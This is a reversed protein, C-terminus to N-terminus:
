LEVVIQSARVQNTSATFVVESADGTWTGNAGSYTYDGTSWTFCGPGYKADDNATCTFTVKKVNGVTSTVTLTQNKYIRYHTENNYTGLIGSSVTITVGDKTITYSTANNSDTGANGKDVDADFVIAGEPPTTGTNDDNGNNDGNNDGNGGPNPNENGSSILKVFYAGMVEIKGNYSGRFGRLTIKDGDKLGLSAFSKDNNTTGVAIFEKTLGYVYVTGTEDSLDFNGYVVANGGASLGSIVGTLEYYVEPSEPANIFEKITVVKATPEKQEVNPNVGFEKNGVKAYEPNKVGAAGFYAELSGYILVEVGDLDPNQVLNLGTRLAGNPLQVPVCNGSNTEDASNAILINTNYSNVSGDDNTSGSFPASFEAGSISKGNIQGVIHAKVWYKGANANNLLRVDNATYPNEFSGDGVVETPNENGPNDGGSLAPNTSKWIHAAGKGVTEYTGNYNTLEGYIVVYDGVAVAEPNTIKEGNLGYVQYAYFDEETNDKSDVIYFLANGFQSIGDAHKSALKKVWGKVYYKTGTTAESALQSCIANAEAVTLCEAPINWGITDPAENTVITTDGGQGNGPGDPPMPPECGIFAVAAFLMFAALFNKLKM